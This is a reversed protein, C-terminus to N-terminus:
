PRSRRGRSTSWPTSTFAGSAASATSEFRHQSTQALRRRAAENKFRQLHRPDLMSAFPLVKLAVRRALSLQEAEYVVGMGGRGIERVIRFDGLALPLPLAALPDLSNAGAASADHVQAAAGHIFDLAELCEALQDSIDAHQALFDTRDLARGSDLATAYQALATAVRPDDPPNLLASNPIRLASNDLLAAASRPDDATAIASASGTACTGPNKTRPEPNPLASNPTELASNPIRLASNDLLAAAPDSRMGCEDNRMQSEGEGRGEGQPLPLRKTNKM